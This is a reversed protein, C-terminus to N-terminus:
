KLSEAYAVADPNPDVQGAFVGQSVEAPTLEVVADIQGFAGTSLVRVKIRPSSQPANAAVAPAAAQRKTAM